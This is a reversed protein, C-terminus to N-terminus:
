EICTQAWGKVRLRLVCFQQCAVVQKVRDTLRQPVQHVPKEFHHRRVDERDKVCVLELQEEAPQRRDINFVPRPVRLIGTFIAALTRSM